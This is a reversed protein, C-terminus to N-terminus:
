KFGKPSCFSVAKKANKTLKKQPMVEKKVNIKKKAESSKKPLFNPVEFNKTENLLPIKTEIKKVNNNTKCNKRKKPNTSITKNDMKKANTSHIQPFGRKGPHTFIVIM